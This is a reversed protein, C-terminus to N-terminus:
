FSTFDAKSLPKPYRLLIVNQLNLTEVVNDAGEKSEFEVEAIVKPRETIIQCRLVAGGVPTIASEIDAVTTGLALNKIVVLYPGALGRISMGGAPKSAGIINFQSNLAPSSASGNIASYLQDKRNPRSARPGRPPGSSSSNNLSHLDHTWEADVNGASPRNSRPQSNKASTSFTRQLLILSPDISNYELTFNM